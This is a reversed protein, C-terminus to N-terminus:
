GPAGRGLLEGPDSLHNDVVAPTVGPGALAEAFHPNTQITHRRLRYASSGPGTFWKSVM